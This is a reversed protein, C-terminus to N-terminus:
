HSIVIHSEFTGYLVQLYFKRVTYLWAYKQAPSYGPTYSQDLLPPVLEPPPYCPARPCRFSVDVPPSIPPSSQPIQPRRSSVYLPNSASGGDFVTKTTKIGRKCWSVHQRICITDSTDVQRRRCTDQIPSLNIAVKDDTQQQICLICNTWQSM